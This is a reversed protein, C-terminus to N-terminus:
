RHCWSRTLLQGVIDIIKEFHWTVEICYWNNDLGVRVTLQTWRDNLGNIKQQIDNSAFHGNAIMQEGMDSVTHIRSDHGALETQLAQHKKMLNQVGILDRGVIPLVYLANYSM